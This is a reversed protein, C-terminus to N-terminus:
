QGARPNLELVRARAREAAAPDAERTALFLALWAGPNEPEARVAARALGLAEAERGARALETAALITARTDTCDETLTALAPGLEGGEATGTIDRVVDAGAESCREETRHAGVVLACVAVAVGVLALRVAAGAASRM